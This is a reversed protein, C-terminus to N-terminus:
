NVSVRFLEAANKHLIRERDAQSVGKLGNEIAGEIAEAGFLCTPHPFDTEFLVNAAGIDELLHTPASREFWYSAYVQRHFYESPLMEFVPYEDQVHGVQFHWDVSELVFPIWGIGSEVSFFKLDPFRPLIGSLLLDTLQEGNRLLSQTAARVLLRKLGFAKVHDQTIMEKLDGSGAHFCIVIGADQAAHWLPDWHRDPLYPQGHSQPTGTFVLGKHGLQVSRDLEKVAAEVDWFPTAAMPIFRKPDPAIWDILFDNYARVCELMLEPEGMALFGQSGLGGVNPFIAQASIGAEDLYKVRAAGDYSAPIAEEYSPPHSPFPEPWGAAASICAEAIKNDGVFWALSRGAKFVAAGSETGSSKEDWEVHPVLDGWKSSVRSTWLDAPETVHSDCDIIPTKM